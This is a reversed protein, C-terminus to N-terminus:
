NGNCAGKSWSVVGSRRAQCPNSYNTGNCGCVPNYEMTCPGESVKAPDVCGNLKGASCSLFALLLIPMGLFCCAKLWIKRHSIKTNRSPTADPLVEITLNHQKLIEIVQAPDFVKNPSEVRLIRDCDELDFDIICGPFAKKLQQEIFLADKELNINTKFVEIM